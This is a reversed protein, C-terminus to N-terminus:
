WGHSNYGGHNEMFDDWFSKDDRANVHGEDATVNVEGIEADDEDDEINDQNVNDEDAEVHGENVEADGRDTQEGNEEPSSRPVELRRRRVRRGRSPMMELVDDSDYDSGNNSSGQGSTDSQRPRKALEKVNALLLGLLSLSHILKPPSRPFTLPQRSNPPGFEEEDSDDIIACDDDYNNVLSSPSITGWTSTSSTAESSSNRRPIPIPATTPERSTSHTIRGPSSRSIVPAPTPEEQITPLSCRKFLPRRKLPM